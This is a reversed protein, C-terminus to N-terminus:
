GAPSAIACVGAPPASQVPHDSSFWKEELADWYGAIDQEIVWSNLVDHLEDSQKDTAFAEITRVLAFDHPIRYKFEKMDRAMDTYPAFLVAGDISGRELADLIGTFSSFGKLDAGPFEGQAVMGSVGGYQYGIAVDKSNLGRLTKAAKSTKRNVIVFYETDHYPLSFDMLRRRDQTNSFGSAIMDVEGSLVSEALECFPKEIYEVDVGLKEGLATTSDIEFGSFTGDPAKIVFPSLPAIGVRITGRQKIEVFDASLAPQAAVLLLATFLLRFM